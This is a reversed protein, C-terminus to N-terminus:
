DKTSAISTIETTKPPNTFTPGVKDRYISFSASNLFAKKTTDDPFELIGIFRLPDETAFCSYNLGGIQESKLGAVLGAMAAVQADHDDAQKLTYEVLLSM